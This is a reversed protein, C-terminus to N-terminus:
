STKKDIYVIVKSNSSRKDFSENGRTGGHYIQQSNIQIVALLALAFAKTNNPTIAHTATVVNTLATNTLVTAEQTSVNVGGAFDTNTTTPETFSLDDAEVVQVRGVETQSIQPRARLLGSSAWFVLGAGIVIVLASVMLLLTRTNVRALQKTIFNVIM